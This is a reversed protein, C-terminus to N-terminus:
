RPQRPDGLHWVPGSDPSRNAVPGTPRDGWTVYDGGLVILDPAAAALLDVAATVDDASVMASHNVDTILGIRIGDHAPALGSVPLTATTVGIRHREFAVGYAGAGTLTGVTTAVIGKLAARRTLAM